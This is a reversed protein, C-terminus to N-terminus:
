LQNRKLFNVKFKLNKDNLHNIFKQKNENELKEDIFKKNLQIKQIKENRNQEEIKQIEYKAKDFEEWNEKEWLKKFYRPLPKLVVKDDIKLLIGKNRKIKEKNELWYKLGIAPKKSMLIFEFERGYNDFRAPETLNKNQIFIKGNREDIKEVPEFEGTYKRKKPKIGAKKLCYRATYCATKYNLDEIAIHGNGWIDAIKKSTQMLNETKSFGINQLDDPKYGFLIMHYHPRFTRPGYEGCLFYAINEDIHYRLRKIFDQIDKKRLTMHNQNIPLHENDYTLTVFCNKEHSKAECMIRTAWNNAHNILCEQCKGCAIEQIKYNWWDAPRKFKIKKDQYYKWSADTLSSFKKIWGILPKTCM